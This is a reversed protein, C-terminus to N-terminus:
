DLNLRSFSSCCRVEARAESWKVAVVENHGAYVLANAFIITVDIDKM